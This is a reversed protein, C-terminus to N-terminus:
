RTVCFGFQASSGPELTANHSAGTFVVTGASGTVESEWNQMLTGDLELPVQWTLPTDGQNTVKWTHCYGSGYDNNVVLELLLADDVVPPSGGAGAVPDGTGASGAGSTGAGGSGSAGSSGGSGADAPAGAAGPTNLSRRLRLQAGSTTAQVLASFTVEGQALVDVLPRTVCRNDANEQLGYAFRLWKSAYCARVETSNALAEALQETGEFPGDTAESYMIEGHVDISQGNEEARYRGIGDFREFGFGIPDMLVHCGACPQMQSHAAYRERATKTPDMPPPQVVIGPPPPPPVQCLLRERVLKGRHVPSSDNSRAHRMMTGALTLIGAREQDALEVPHLGSADAPGTADLAVGYHAALTEDVFSTPDTLLAALSGDGEFMAHDIFRELEHLMSARLAGDLEPFRAPDKPVTTIADLGLWELVFARVTAHAAPADLMRLTADAIQEPTHLAGARAADFLAQDPMSQWLVYSLESAIEFDDLAYLEGSGATGLERRYLFHPSQLMATVVLRAGAEFSGASGALTVYREVDADTLPRRFAREGFSRVLERTCTADATASACPAVRSLEVRAAVDEAADRLKDALLPSVVLSTAENAFGDIVADAPFGTGWTGTLGVLEAITNDYQRPTLRYLTRTGVADPTCPGQAGGNAGGALADSGGLGAGSGGAGSSSGANGRSDSGGGGRGDGDGAGACSACAWASLAVIM